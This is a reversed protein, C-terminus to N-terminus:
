YNADDKIKEWGEWGAWLYAYNGMDVLTDVGTEDEFDGAQVLARALKIAIYNKFTAGVECRLISAMYRFNIYPDHGQSYKQSRAPFLGCGKLMAKFFEPNIDKVASFIEAEEKTITISMPLRYNAAM